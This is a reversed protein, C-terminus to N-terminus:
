YARGYSSMMQMLSQIAQQQQARQQLDGQFQQDAAHTQGQAAQITQERNLDGLGGAAGSLINATGEGEIGSGLTGRSAMSDRLGTIASKSILGARDKGRAFEAEQAKQLAQPDAGGYQVPTSGGSGGMLTSGKSFVNEMGQQSQDFNQKSLASAGEQARKQQELTSAADYQQSPDVGLLPNQNESGTVPDNYNNPATRTIYGIQGPQMPRTQIGAM